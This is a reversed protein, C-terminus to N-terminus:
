QSNEEKIRRYDPVQWNPNKYGAEDSFLRMMAFTWSNQKISQKVEEVSLEVKAVRNELRNLSNAYENIAGRVFWTAWVGTTLLPMLIACVIGLPVMTEASLIKRKVPAM